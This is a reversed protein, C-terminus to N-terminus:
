VINIMRYLFKYGNILDQGDHFNSRYLEVMLCGSYDQQELSFILKKFDFSGTGPLLCDGQKGSDSIHIHALADGMSRQMLEVSCGARLCQKVDLVFRVQAGLYEHMRRIYSCSGSKCRAVNEQLLVVGCSRAAQALRAFREFGRKEECLGDKREGHFIVYKGGLCATAHFFRKYNEVGDKFRRQYDSFFLLSELGSLYPHLSILRTGGEKLAISLSHIYAPSLESDSNLFIEITDVGNDILYAAAKETQMPYFCATSIGVNMFAACDAGIEREIHKNKQMNFIFYKAGLM